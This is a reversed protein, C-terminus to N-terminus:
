PRHDVLKVDKEYDFTPDQESDHCAICRDEAPALLYSLKADRDCEGVHGEREFQVHDIGYGHCVECQVNIREPTKEVSHFGNFFGYGTTHCKLCNPNKEQNEGVLTNYTHAHSTSKWDEYEVAHCSRCEEVGVYRVDELDSTGPALEGGRDQLEKNYRVLLDAMDPDESVTNDLAKVRGRIDEVKRNGDLYVELVGLYKGQQGPMVLPIGNVMYPKTKVSAGGGVIMADIGSVSRAIARAQLWGTQALCVILDTKPELEEVIERGITAADKIILRKEGGDRNWPLPELEQEMMLVGFIGVKLGGWEFGLFRKGGIRKIIYPALFREGTDAYYVNASVIPVGTREGQALLWNQGLLLDSGGLNFCDMGMMGYADFLYQGKIRELRSDSGVTNGCDLVLTSASDSEALRTIYAARRAM